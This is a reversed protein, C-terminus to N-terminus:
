VEVTMTNCKMSHYDSTQIKVKEELDTQGFIIVTHMLM